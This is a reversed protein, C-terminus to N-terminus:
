SLPAIFMQESGWGGLKPPKTFCHFFDFSIVCVNGLPPFQRYFRTKGLLQFAQIFNGVVHPPHPVVLCAVQIAVEVRFEKQTDYNGIVFRVPESPKINLDMYVGYPNCRQINAGNLIKPKGKSTIPAIKTRNDQTKLKYSNERFGGNNHESIEKRLIDGDFYLIINNESLEPHVSNSPIVVRDWSPDVLELGFYKRQENTLEM